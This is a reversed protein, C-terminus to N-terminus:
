AVDQSVSTLTRTKTRRRIMFCIGLVAVTMIVVTLLVAVITNAIIVIMKTKNGEDKMLIRLTPANQTRYNPISTYTNVRLISASIVPAADTFRNLTGNSGIDIPDRGIVRNNIHAYWVKENTKIGKIYSLTVVGLDGNERKGRNRDNYDNEDDKSKGPNFMQFGLVDGPAVEIQQHPAFQVIRLRNFMLTFRNTGVKTYFGGSYSNSTALLRWVQM